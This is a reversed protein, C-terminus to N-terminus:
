EIVEIQYRYVRITPGTIHESHPAPDIRVIYTDGEAGVEIIAGIVGAFRGKIVRVRTGQGVTTAAKNVLSVCAGITSLPNPLTIDLDLFLSALGETLGIRQEISLM